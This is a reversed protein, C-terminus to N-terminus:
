LDEMGPKRPGSCNGSHKFPQSTTTIGAPTGLFGPINEMVFLGLTESFHMEASSCYMGPPQPAAKQFSEPQRPIYTTQLHCQGLAQQTDPVETLRQRLNNSM